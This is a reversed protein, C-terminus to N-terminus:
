SLSRDDGIRAAGTMSAPGDLNLTGQRQVNRRAHVVVDTNAKATFALGSLAARRWAIQIANKTHALMRDKSAMALVQMAFHRYRDALGRQAPGDFHRHQITLKDRM